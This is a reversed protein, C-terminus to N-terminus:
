PACKGRECKNGPPCDGNSNCETVQVTASVSVGIGTPGNAPPPPAAGATAPNVCFAGIADGQFPPSRRIAVAPCGNNAATDAVRGRYKGWDSFSKKPARFVGLAQWPMAAGNYTCDQPQLTPERCDIEYFTIDSKARKAARAGDYNVTYGGGCASTLALAGTILALGRAISNM